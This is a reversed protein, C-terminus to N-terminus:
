VEYLFAVGPRKNLDQLVSARYGRGHSHLKLVFNAGVVHGVSHANEFESIGLGSERLYVLFDRMSDADEFLVFLRVRGSKEM